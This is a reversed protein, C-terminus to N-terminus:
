KGSQLLIPMYPTILFRKINTPLPYPIITNLPPPFQLGRLFGGIPFRILTRSTVKTHKLNTKYQTPLDELKM